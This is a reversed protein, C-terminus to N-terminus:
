RGDVEREELTIQFSHRGKGAPLPWVLTLSSGQYTRELGAESNSVTEVPFHWLQAPRDTTLSIQFGLDHALLEFGEVDPTAHIQDLPLTQGDTKLRRHPSDPSLLTLNNEVAWLSAPTAPNELDIEYAVRLLRGNELYFNKSVTLPFVGGPAWVRTQRKLLCWARGARCGHDVLTWPQDVLDGWEGADPKRFAEVTATPALLHDQFCARQYWDYILHDALHDEKFEVRDHISKIEGSAEDMEKEPELLHRHYAERRRTLVTTPCFRPRRLNLLSVSGGYAPHILLDIEPGALSVEDHGDLDLDEVRCRSWGTEGRQGRDLLDEAAILHEHVAHRLHALYLGGFLGHWYACNCQAQYLHDLAPPLREPEQPDPGPTLGAEALRRSIMLARKHMLNSESYKVLFNDWTGGRLFRRKWAQDPQHNIQNYLGELAEASDPPLCWASMEEYSATPLYVRGRPPHTDLYQSPQRAALWDSNKLVAEIFRVLWGGELVWEYTDPWLGFKECDDGYTAATPGEQDFVRKLFDLTAQPEKFPITYRLDKHTPFVALPAGERETLHYGFMDAPSKGAYYLHTDDVITYDLGLPALKAPLGPEWVREALWFGRPNASYRRGLYSTLKKVQGLADRTPIPALLPEYYGGTLLEVQGRRHMEGLLELFEPDNAELHELLPGSYHLGLRFEPYEALIELVPRYCQRVALDFVKPFNGVPQHSHLVMILSMRDM